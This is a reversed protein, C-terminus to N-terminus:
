KPKTSKPPTVQQRQREWGHAAITSLLDGFFCDREGRTQRNKNKEQKM